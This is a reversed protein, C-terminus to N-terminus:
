RLHICLDMRSGLICTLSDYRHTFCTRFGCVHCHMIPAAGQMIHLQGSGCGPRACWCFEPDKEIFSRFLRTDFAQFVKAAAHKRVDAYLLLATCDASCICHIDESRGKGTVEEEIHQQLCTVCIKRQGNCRDTVAAAPINVEPTDRACIRCTSVKQGM